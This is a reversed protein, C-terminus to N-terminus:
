RCGVRSGGHVLEEEEEGWDGQAVLQETGEVRGRRCPVEHGVFCEVLDLEPEVPVLHPRVHFPRGQSGSLWRWWGGYSCAQRSKAQRREM